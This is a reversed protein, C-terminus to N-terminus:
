HDQINRCIPGKLNGNLQCCVSRVDRVSIARIQYKWTESSLSQPLRSPKSLRSFVIKIYIAKPLHHVGPLIKHSGTIYAAWLFSSLKQTMTSRLMPCSSSTFFFIMLIPSTRCLKFCQQISHFHIGCVNRGYIIGKFFKLITLFPRGVAIIHTESLPNPSMGFCHGTMFYSYCFFYITM